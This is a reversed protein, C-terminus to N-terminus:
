QRIGEWVGDGLVFGSDCVSVTAQANPVIRGNVHITNSENRIDDEAQPTSVNATM